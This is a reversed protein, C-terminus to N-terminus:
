RNACLYLPVKPISVTKFRDHDPHQKLYSMIDGNNMWPSIFCFRPEFLELNAGIFPLINPHRLQRWVLVESCFDQLHDMM